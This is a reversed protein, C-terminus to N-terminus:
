RKPRKVRRTPADTHRWARFTLSAEGLTITDGDDLAAGATIARGNIDTGNTSGLDEITPTEGAAAPVRIRAHRRSVGPADIWIACTPDRGIVNEAQDLVIARENWVLWFRPTGAPEASLAAAVTRAEGDFAYGVGHVTRLVSAEDGLAGRIEAILNGLAADVVHTDRWLHQRLATRDVVAPRSQVLLALLQFAKPSLHLVHRGRTLQRTGDDLVFSGFSVRVADEDDHHFGQSITSISQGRQSLYYAVPSRSPLM